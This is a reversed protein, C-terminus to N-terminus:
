GHGRHAYCPACSAKCNFEKAILADIGDSLARAVAQTAQERFARLHEQLAETLRGHTQERMLRWLEEQVERDVRAHYDTRGQGAVCALCWPRYPIHTLNHDEVEQESPTDPAKRAVARQGEEVDDGESEEQEVDSDRQM